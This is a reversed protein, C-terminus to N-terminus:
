GKRTKPSEGSPAVFPARTPMAIWLLVMGPVLYGAPAWVQRAGFALLALALCLALEDLGVFSVIVAVVANRRLSLAAGM